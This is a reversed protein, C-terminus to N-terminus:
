EECAFSEDVSGYLEGFDSPWGQAEKEEPREAVCSTDCDVSVAIVIGGEHEPKNGFTGNAPIKGVKIRHEMTSKLWDSAMFVADDLDTGCTAGELGFPYASIMGEDEFFEFERIFIM